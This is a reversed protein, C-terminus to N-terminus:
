LRLLAANFGRSRLFSVASGTEPGSDARCIIELDRYPELEDLREKLEEYPITLAGPFPAPEGDPEERLDLFIARGEKLREACEEPTRSPSEGKKRDFFRAILLILILAILLVITPDTTM